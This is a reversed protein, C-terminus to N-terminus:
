FNMASNLKTWLYQTEQSKPHALLMIIMFHALAAYITKDTLIATLITPEYMDLIGPAAALRYFQSKQALSLKSLTYPGEAEGSAPPSQEFEEMSARVHVVLRSFLFAFFPYDKEALQAHRTFIADEREENFVFMETFSFAKAVDESNDTFLPEIARLVIEDHLRQIAGVNGIDSGFKKDEGLGKKIIDAIKTNTKRFIVESLKEHLKSIINTVTVAETPMDFILWEKDGPPVLLELYRKRIGEQAIEGMQGSAWQDCWKMFYETIKGYIAEHEGLFKLNNEKYRVICRMNRFRNLKELLYYFRLSMRYLYSDRFQFGPLIFETHDMFVEANYLAPCSFCEVGTNKFCLLMSTRNLLAQVYQELDASYNVLTWGYFLFCFAHELDCMSYLMICKPRDPGQGKPLTIDKPKLFPSEAEAGMSIYMWLSHVDQNQTTDRTMASHSLRTAIVNPFDNMYPTRRNTERETNNKLSFCYLLVRVRAMEFLLQGALTYQRVSKKELLRTREERVRIRVFSTSAKTTQVYYLEMLFLVEKLVHIYAYELEGHLTQKETFGADNSRQRTYIESDQGKLGLYPLFSYELLQNLCTNIVILKTGFALGFQHEMEITPDPMNMASGVTKSYKNWPAVIQSLQHVEQLLTKCMNQLISTM